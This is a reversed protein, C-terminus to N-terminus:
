KALAKLMEKNKALKAYVLANRGFQDKISKDAGAALLARATRNANKEVAFILATRGLWDRANIDSTKIYVNLLRLTDQAEQEIRGPNDEMRFSRYKVFDMLPTRGVEVPDALNYDKLDIKPAEGLVPMKPDAGADILEAIFEAPAQIVLHLASKNGFVQKTNAGNRVLHKVVQMCKNPNTNKDVQELALELAYKGEFLSFRESQVSGPQNPNAGLAIAKDVVQANCRTAGLLLYNSAEAVNLKAAKLPQYACIDESYVGFAAYAKDYDYTTKFENWQAKQAADTCVARNIPPADGMMEDAALKGNGEVFTLCDEFSHTSLGILTPAFHNAVSAAADHDSWKCLAAARALTRVEAVQALAADASQTQPVMTKQAFAPFFATVSVSTVLLRILGYKLSM